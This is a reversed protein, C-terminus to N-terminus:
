QMPCARRMRVTDRRPLHGRQCPSWDATVEAASIRAFLQQQNDFTMWPLPSVDNINVIVGHQNQESNEKM